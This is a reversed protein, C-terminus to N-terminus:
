VNIYNKTSLLSQGQYCIMEGYRRLLLQQKGTQMMQSISSLEGQDKLLQLGEIYSFMKLDEHKAYINPM